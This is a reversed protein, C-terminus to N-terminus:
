VLELILQHYKDIISQWTFDKQITTYNAEILNQCEARNTSELISAVESANKFYFANKNLVGKNFENNHAAILAGSSMAELLSPNTGGVSHGHFYLNCYQRLYNLKNIDYIGQTFEINANSGYSNYLEKGFDTTTNGIVLLKRPTNAQLRGEIIEKVHNEPEMRAILMDYEFAELGFESLHKPSDSKFINAGYAIYTSDKKYKTKLYSKIGLSDAILEDSSKVGLWEAVKLFQQVPKSYKSRKWELGDMNTAIKAKSPMLWFWITSSTYGLQLIVDFSQKRADLICNLDYIFQGATGIKKEADFCHIIEVGNWTKEQYPHDHVNYVSVDLGKKVLGVSLYEALQGYGGYHNPIGRCGLIAVKLKNRM